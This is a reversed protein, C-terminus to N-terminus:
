WAFDGTRETLQGDDLTLIRDATQAVSLSHTVLLTTSQAAQLQERLFQLMQKGTVADLNGTPEDALVLAPRNALARLIAIRQQEGGSLQPPYHSAKSGLGIADLLDGARQVADGASEGNLELILAINELATLTPLLNFSQYIFGIHRRRFLTRQQEDLATVNCGDIHIEGADPLDIGSLLNLLTSKGSGSRGLLAVTEGRWLSFDVAALVCQQAGGQVYQRSLKCVQVFSANM